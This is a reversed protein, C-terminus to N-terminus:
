PAGAASSSIVDLGSKSESNPKPGKAITKKTGLYKLVRQKPKGNERYAEVLYYYTKDGRKKSRIFSM